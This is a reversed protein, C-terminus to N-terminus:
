CSCIPAAYGAFKYKDYNNRFNIDHFKREARVGEYFIRYRHRHASDGRESVGTHFKQRIGRM